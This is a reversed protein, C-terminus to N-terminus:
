KKSVIAEIVLITSKDNMKQLSTAIVTGAKLDEDMYSSNLLGVIYYKNKEDFDLLRGWLLEPKDKFPIIVEVDDPYLPNRLSDLEEHNRMEVYNGNQYYTDMQEDLSYTNIEGSYLQVDYYKFMDNRILVCEETCLREILKDNDENGVVRINLGSSPDIYVYGIFPNKLEKIGLNNFEKEMSHIVVLKRNIDRFSYDQIKHEINPEKEFYRMYELKNDWGEVKNFIFMIQENTMMNLIKDITEDIKTKELIKDVFYDTFDASLVLNRFRTCKFFAGFLAEQFERVYDFDIEIPVFRDLCNGVDYVYETKYITEVLEINNMEACLDNCRKDFDTKKWEENLKKEFSFNRGSEYKKMFAIIENDLDIAQEIISKNYNDPLKFLNDGEIKIYSLLYNIFNYIYIYKRDECKKGFSIITYKDEVSISFSSDTGDYEPIGNVFDFCLVEMVMNTLTGKGRGFSINKPEKLLINEDEITYEVFKVEVDKKGLYVYFAYNKSDINEAVITLLKQDGSEVFENEVNNIIKRKEM